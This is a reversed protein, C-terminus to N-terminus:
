FRAAAINSMSRRRNYRFTAAYPSDCRVRLNPSSPCAPSHEAHHVSRLQVAGEIELGRGPLQSPAKHKKAGRPTLLLVPTLLLYSTIDHLPVQTHAPKTLTSFHYLHAHTLRQPPLSPAHIMHTGFHFLPHPVPVLTAHHASLHPSPTLPPSPARTSLIARSDPIHHLHMAFLPPVSRGVVLAHLSAPTFFLSNAHCANASCSSLRPQCSTQLPLTDEAGQQLLSFHYMVQTTSVALTATTCSACGSPAPTLRQARRSRQSIIEAM